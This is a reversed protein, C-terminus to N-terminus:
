RENFLTVHICVREFEFGTGYERKFHASKDATRSM